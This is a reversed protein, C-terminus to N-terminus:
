KYNDKINAKAGKGKFLLMHNRNKSNLRCFWVRFLGQVFLISRELTPSRAYHIHEYDITISAVGPKLRSCVHAVEEYELPKCLIRLAPKSFITYERLLVTAFIITLIQVIPPHVLLNLTTLGCKVYKTKDTLLNGDVLFVNMQSTSRQGNMLKWFSKEDTDPAACLRKIKKSSLKISSLVCHNVISEASQATSTTYTVLPSSVM